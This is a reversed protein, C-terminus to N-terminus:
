DKLSKQEINANLQHIEPNNEILDIIDKWGFTGDEGLAEYIAQVLALDEPTDVTWRHSSYDAEGEVSLVSFKEPNELIYPTVHEREHKQKAEEWVRQLANM